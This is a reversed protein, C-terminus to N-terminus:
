SSPIVVVLMGNDPVPTGDARKVSGTTTSGTNIAKSFVFHVKTTGATPVTCTTGKTLGAQCGGTSGDDFVVQWRSSFGTIPMHAAQSELPTMRTVDLEATGAAGPCATAADSGRWEGPFATTTNGLTVGEYFVACSVSSTSGYGIGIPESFTVIFSQVVGQTTLKVSSVTPTTGSPPAAFVPFTTDIERNANDQASQDLADVHLVINYRTGVGWTGVPSLTLLNTGLTATVQVSALNGFEDLVPARITNRDIAENFAMTVPASVAVFGATPANFTPYFSGSVNRLYALNSDEITLATSPGALSIIPAAGGTGSGGLALDGMDFDFTGGLFSYSTSGSAGSAAAVAVPPVDIPLQDIGGSNGLSGVNGLGAYDPLGTFTCLGTMDSTASVAYSGEPTRVGGAADIYRVQPRAVVKISTAPAGNETVLRVSFTGTSKVLEITDVTHTPNNVPLNGVSGVLQDSIMAAIYGMNSISMTFQGAPVKALSYAGTKGVTATLTTGGSLLTVTAGALPMESEADLVLGGVTGTPNANGVSVSNSGCGLASVASVFLPVWFASPRRMLSVAEYNALFPRTNVLFLIFALFLRGLILVQDGTSGHGGVGVGVGVAAAGVALVAVGGVVYWFGPWRRFRRWRSPGTDSAAALREPKQPGLARDVLAEVDLPASAEPSTQRVHVVRGDRTVRYASLELQAAATSPTARRIVLEDVGLADLTATLDVAGSDLLGRARYLPRLLPLRELARVAPQAEAETAEGKGRKDGQVGQVAFIATQTVYGRRRFTVYHPGPTCAVGAVPTRGPLAVGDILVEAGPPDSEPALQGMGLMDVLLKAEVVVRELPLGFREKSFTTKPDLAFVFQLAAQAGARDGAFYRARTLRTWADVLAPQGKTAVVDPLLRQYVQLTDELLRKADDMEGKAFHADAQAIEADVQAIAALTEPTPSSPQALEGVRVLTMNAHRSIAQEAAADLAEALEVPQDEDLTYAGVRLGHTEAHALRAGSSLGWVLLAARLM